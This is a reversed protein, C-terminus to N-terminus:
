GTIHKYELQCSQTWSGNKMTKIVCFFYHFLEKQLLYANKKLFFINCKRLLLGKAVHNVGLFVDRYNFNVKM